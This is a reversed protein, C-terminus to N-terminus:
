CFMERHMGIHGNAESTLKPLCAFSNLLHVLRPDCTSITCDPEHPTTTCLNSQEHPCLRTWLLLRAQSQSGRQAAATRGRHQVREAAASNRLM